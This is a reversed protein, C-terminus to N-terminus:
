AKGAIHAARIVALIAGCAVESRLVYPGLSVPLFGATVAEVVEDSSLGGEPGILVTLQGGQWDFGTLCDLVPRAEPTWACVLRLGSDFRRVASGFEEPGELTPLAGRQCQRAVQAAVRMLREHRSNGELKAVSREGHVLVLREAGHVTVDRVAQEPKDGKGIAQLITVPMDSRTAERVPGIKVQISPMRDSIIVGEAELGSAPDFVLLSDGCRLRHVKAVYRGEVDALTVLGGSVDLDRSLCDVPVRLSASM